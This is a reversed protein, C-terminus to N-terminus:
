GCKAEEKRKRVTTGEGDKERVATNENKNIM